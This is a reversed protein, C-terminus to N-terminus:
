DRPRPLGARLTVASAVSFALGCSAVTGIFSARWGGEALLALKLPLLVPKVLVFTVVFLGLIKLLNGRLRFKTQVPDPSPARGTLWGAVAAGSVASAGLVAASPFGAWPRVATLVVSVSVTAAIGYVLGSLAVRVKGPFPTV